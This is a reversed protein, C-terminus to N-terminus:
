MAKLGSNTKASTDMDTDTPITGKKNLDVLRFIVDDESQFRCFDTTTLSERSNRWAYLLETEIDANIINPLWAEYNHAHNVADDLKAKVQDVSCIELFVQLDELTDTVVNGM